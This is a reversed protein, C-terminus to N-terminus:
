WSYDDSDLYVQSHRRLCEAGTKSAPHINGPTARIFLRWTDAECKTARHMTSQNFAFWVRQEMQFEDKAIKIMPAPHGSVWMFMTQSLWVKSPDRKGDEDRPVFDCHWDPIGAYMGPKLMHVKVDYIFQCLNQDQGLQDCSLVDLLPLIEPM